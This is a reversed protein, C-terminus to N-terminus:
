KRTEREGNKRVNKSGESILLNLEKCRFRDLLNGESNSCVMGFEDVWEYAFGPKKYNQGPMSVM